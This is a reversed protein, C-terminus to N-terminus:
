SAKTSTTPIGLRSRMQGSFSKVAQMLTKDELDQMVKQRYSIAELDNLRTYYFPALDYDKWDATITEVIQDLNLDRFFAPAELAERRTDDDPGEFLISHFPVSDARKQPHSM